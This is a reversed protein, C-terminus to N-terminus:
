PTGGPIIDPATYEVTHIRTQNGMNKNFFNPDNTSFNVTKEFSYHDPRMMTISLTVEM